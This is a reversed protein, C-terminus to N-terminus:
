RIVLPLYVHASSCWNLFRGLVEQRDGLSALGEFPFGLFATKYVGNSKSVGAEQENTGIISTGATEDPILVDPFAIFPYSLGYPGLGRFATGSGLINLYSGVDGDVDAVGLYTQMFPTFGHDFYYDQSSIFLCKGQDLWSGLAAEGGSGPGAYWWYESGSFWIVVEYPNLEMDTPENDSNGTDWVDYVVGLADLTGTYFSRVDPSNDDDDVVLVPPVDMTQFAYVGSPTGSGCSNDARVRWYYWTEVEL